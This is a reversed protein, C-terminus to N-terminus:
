KKKIRAGRKRAKNLAIAIKQKRPINEGEVEHFAKKVIKQTKTKKQKAM